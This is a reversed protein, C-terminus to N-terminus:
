FSMGIGITVMSFYSNSSIITLDKSYGISAFFRTYSVKLGVQYGLTFRKYPNSRDSSFLNTTSDNIAGSFYHTKSTGLLYGKANFGAYPLLIFDDTLSLAYIFSIPLRVGLFNRAYSYSDYAKKYHMWELNGGFEFLFPLNQIPIAKLVGVSYTNYGDQNSSTAGSKTNFTTPAYSVWASTYGEALPSFIASGM